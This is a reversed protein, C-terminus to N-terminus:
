DEVVNGFVVYTGMKAKVSPTYDVTFAVAMDPDIVRYVIDCYMDKKVDVMAAKAARAADGKTEYRGVLVGDEKTRIEFFRKTARSGEKVNNTFTWPRQRNDATGNETAVILGVGTSNTLRNKDLADVMFSKFGNTGYVPEGAKKWSPTVNRVVTLGMEAAKQKAEDLSFANIEYKVVM